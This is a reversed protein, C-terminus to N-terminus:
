QSTIGSNSLEGLYDILAQWAAFKSVSNGHAPLRVSKSVAISSARIRSGANTYITVDDAGPDNLLSVATEAISQQSALGHKRRDTSIEVKMSLNAEEYLKSPDRQHSKMLTAEALEQLEGIFNQKKLSRNIYKMSASYLCSNIVIRAVGEKALLQVKGVDAVASVALDSPSFDHWYQALISELYNLLATERLLSTCVVLDDERAVYFIDGDLYSHGQPPERTSTDLDIATSADPVLCAPQNPVYSSIHGCSYADRKAFSMGQIKGDGYDFVRDQTAKYKDHAEDLLQQLSKGHSRTWIARRYSLRRSKETNMPNSKIM